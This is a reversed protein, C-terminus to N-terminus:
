KVKKELSSRLKLNKQFPVVVVQDLERFGLPADGTNKFVFTRVGNSGKTIDGYDITDIDFSIIPGSTQSTLAFPASILLIFFIAKKM